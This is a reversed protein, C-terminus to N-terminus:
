RWPLSPRPMPSCPPRRAIGTRNVRLEFWDGPSVALVPTIFFAPNGTFGTGGIRVSWMLTGPYAASAAAGNRPIQLSIAGTGAADPVRAALGEHWGQRLAGLLTVGLAPPVGLSEAIRLAGPVDLDPGAFGPVICLM